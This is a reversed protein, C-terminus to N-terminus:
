AGARPKELAIGQRSRHARLACRPARVCQSVGGAARASGSLHARASRARGPDGLPRPASEEPDAAAGLDAAAELLRLDMKVLNAYLPLIMFPLYVYVMGITLSFPTNLLQLPEHIVHLSLLLSNLVGNSALIGKWAYIRILFSTWFPLMVLMLLAPQRAAPARSMAYSFPYGILLCLATTLAAYGISRLYTMFYLDDGWIFLYNSLKFHAQLVGDVYRFMPQFLQTGEGIETISLKLLILFPILFFVDLWLHPVAIVGWRANKRFFDKIPKLAGM